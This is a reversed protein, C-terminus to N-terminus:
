DFLVGMIVAGPEKRLEEFGVNEYFAIANANGAGVGLHIGSSGKEKLRNLFTTMMKKGFGKKQAVPLLDIHLHSPYDNLFDPM